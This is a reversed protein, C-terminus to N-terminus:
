AQVALLERVEDRTLGRMNVAQHATCGGALPLGGALAPSAIVALIAPFIMFLVLFLLKLPINATKEEM